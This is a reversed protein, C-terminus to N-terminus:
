KSVYLRKIHCLDSCIPVAESQKMGGPSGAYQQTWAGSGMGQRGVGPVCEEVGQIGKEVAEENEGICSEERWLPASLSTCM